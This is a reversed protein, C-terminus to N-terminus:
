KTPKPKRTYRAPKEGKPATPKPPPTERGPRNVGPLQTPGRPKEPM